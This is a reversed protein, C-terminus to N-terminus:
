IVSKNYNVAKIKETAQHIKQCYSWKYYLAEDFSVSLKGALEAVELKVQEPNPQTMLTQAIFLIIENRQSSIKELTKEYNPIKRYSSWTIIKYRKRNQM